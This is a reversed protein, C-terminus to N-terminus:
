KRHIFVCVILGHTNSRVRQVFTNSSPSGIGAPLDEPQMQVLRRDGALEVAWDGSRRAWSRMHEIM